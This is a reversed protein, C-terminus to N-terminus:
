GFSKVRRHISRILYLTAYQPFEDAPDFEDAYGELLALLHGEVLENSTTPANIADAVTVLQTWFRDSMALRKM